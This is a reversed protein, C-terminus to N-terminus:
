TQSNLAFTRTQLGRINVSLPTSLISIGVLGSRGALGGAKLSTAADEGAIGMHKASSPGVSLGNTRDGRLM